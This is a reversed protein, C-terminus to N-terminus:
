SALRKPAPANPMQAPRLARRTFTMVKDPGGFGNKIKVTWEYDCEEAREIPMIHVVPAPQPPLTAELTVPSNVTVQPTPMKLAGLAAALKDATAKPDNEEIHAVLDTIAQMTQQLMAQLTEERKAVSAVVRLKKIFPELDADDVPEAMDNM